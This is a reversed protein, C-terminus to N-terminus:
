LVFPHIAKLYVSLTTEPSSKLWEKCIYQSNTGEATSIDKVKLEDENEKINV